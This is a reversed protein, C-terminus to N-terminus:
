SEDIIMENDTNAYFDEYSKKAEDTAKDTLKYIWNDEDFFYWSKDKMFYPEHQM